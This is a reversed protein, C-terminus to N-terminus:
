KLYIDYTSTTVFVVTEGVTREKLDIDDRASFTEQSGDAFALTAKRKKQDIKAIVASSQITEVTRMGPKEGKPSKEVTLTAEEDVKEGPKAMRIKLEENLSITIQDGIKVQGFAKSDPEAQFNIMKGKKTVVTAIKEEANLATVTGQFKTVSTTDFGPVGRELRTFTEQETPLKPTCSSFALLAVPLAIFFRAKM